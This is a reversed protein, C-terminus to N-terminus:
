KDEDRDLLQWTSPTAHRKLRAFAKMGGDTTVADDPGMGALSKKSLFVFTEGIAAPSFGANIIAAHPYDSVIRLVKELTAHDPVHYQCAIGRSVSVAATKQIAGDPGVSFQKGLSHKEDIVVTIIDSTSGDPIPCILAIAKFIETADNQQPAVNNTSPNISQTQM